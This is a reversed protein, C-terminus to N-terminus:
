PMYPLHIWPGVTHSLPWFLTMAQTTQQICCHLFRHWEMSSSVTFFIYIGNSICKKELMPGYTHTADTM